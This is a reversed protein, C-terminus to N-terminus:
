GSEQTKVIWNITM